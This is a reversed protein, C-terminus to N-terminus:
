LARRENQLVYLALYFGLLNLSNRTSLNYIHLGNCIWLGLSNGKEKEM